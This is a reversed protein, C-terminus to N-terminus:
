RRPYPKKENTLGMLYDVSTGYYLALKEMVELPPEVEGTEYRSYTQQKCHLYEALHKQLLDNDDRLDRIRLQM